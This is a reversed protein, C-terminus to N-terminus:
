PKTGFPPRHAVPEADGSKEILRGLVAILAVVVIVTPPVLLAILM